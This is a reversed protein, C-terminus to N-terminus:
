TYAVTNKKKKKQSPPGPALLQLGAPMLVWTVLFTFWLRGNSMLTRKAWLGTFPPALPGYM